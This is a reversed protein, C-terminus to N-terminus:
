CSDDGPVMAAASVQYAVGADVFRTLPGAGAVAAVASPMTVLACQHVDALSIGADAPWPIRQAKAGGFMGPTARQAMIRVATPRFPRTPVGRVAARLETVFRQLHARASTEPDVPMGLAYADHRWSGGSADIRLTTSPADAVQIGGPSDYDPPTRLLGLDQARHLLEQLDAEDLHGVEIPQMLWSSGERPRTPVYVTGDGTVVADAPQTFAWEIAVFGGGVKLRLVVDDHGQPHTITTAPSTSRTPTPDGIVDASQGCGSLAVLAVGVAVFTRRRIM